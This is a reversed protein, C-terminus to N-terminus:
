QVTFRYSDEFGSFDALLRRSILLLRGGDRRMLLYHFEPDYPYSLARIRNADNNLPHHVGGGGGITLFDKDNIRFHEFDHAHGSIFLKAKKARQFPKVFSEQVQKNSGVVQSNSYPAHHCCVVVLKVSVDVDLTALAARYFSDQQTRQEQTLQRFNSNLMVFAISDVIEVSGTNVMGPFRRRFAAEGKAASLMLDHNGLLAHIKTDQQRISDLYTDVKIWRTEQDGIAVVDGLLFLAGPKRQIIDAFIRTTALTNKHDGYLVKEVRFPQQTDSLLAIEPSRALSQAYCTGTVLVLCGVLLCIRLGKM